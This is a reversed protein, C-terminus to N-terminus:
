RFRRRMVSLMSALKPNLLDVAYIEQYETGYELGVAIASQLVQVPDSPVTANRRRMRNTPRGMRDTNDNTVFWLMQGAIPSGAKKFSYLVNQPPVTDAHVTRASLTNKQVIFRRGYRTRAYAILANQVYNPESSSDFRDLNGSNFSMVMAQHPFAAMTTDIIEKGADILKSATYGARKWNDLDEPTDPLHWDETNTNACAEGIVKVAPNNAYREGEARILEKKYKLMVPDWPLAMSITRGFRPHYPNHDTFTLSQVGQEYVWSPVTAGGSNVHIIVDKGAKAARAIESDLFSWDFVGHNPEVSPWKSRLSVASVLPNSLIAEQAPINVNQLSAYGKPITLSDSESSQLAVRTPNMGPVKEESEVAPLTRAQIFVFATVALVRIVDFSGRAQTM